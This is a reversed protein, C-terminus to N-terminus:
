NLSSMNKWLQFLLLADGEKENPMRCLWYSAVNIKSEEM